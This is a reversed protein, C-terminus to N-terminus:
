ILTLYKKELHKFFCLRNTSGGRNYEDYNPPTAIGFIVTKSPEVNLQQCFQHQTQHWKNWNWDADIFELVKLGVSAGLNNLYKVKNYVLLSDGDDHRTLRMGIRLNAVPLTKSLSFTIDTIAPHDLDFNIGACLGFFACDVLVPVNKEYCLDLIKQMDPYPNGTDAFPLSIIMADGHKLDDQDMYAWNFSNKWSITHYVYEGRFVRFRSNHNKAYFKDFAESTGNSYVKVPFADLGQLQNLRSNKIWQVYRELFVELVDHNEVDQASDIVFQRVQDQMAPDVVAGAGGFPLHKKITPLIPQTM